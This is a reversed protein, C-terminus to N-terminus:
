LIETRLRIMINVLTVCCMLLALNVQSFLRSTDTGPKYKTNAENLVRHVMSRNCTIGMVVCAYSLRLDIPFYIIYCFFFLSLLLLSFFFFLETSTSGLLQSFGANPM